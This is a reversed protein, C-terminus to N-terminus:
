SNSRDAAPNKGGATVAGLLRAVDMAGPDEIVSAFCEEIAKADFGYDRRLRTEVDERIARRTRTLQRSVTAEHERLSRGIAALTMDQSYYCHLRLRDRPALAAVAALFASRLRTVFRRRDPDPERAPAAPAASDDADLPELRRASRMRDIHRQAMVARLWTGLRSRGHFYRFLSRRVGDREELGFLEAYMSDALDRAGGSPDIAQAARYLVPRHEAVFHNWAAEAGDACAVALALDPLCLSRVYGDIEANSPSRGSFAHAVSADIAARFRAPAIGWRGAGAAEFWQAYQDSV